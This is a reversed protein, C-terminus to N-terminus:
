VLTVGNMEARMILVAAISFLHCGNPLRSSESVQCPSDLQAGGAQRFTSCAFLEVDKERNHVAREIQRTEECKDDRTERQQRALACM